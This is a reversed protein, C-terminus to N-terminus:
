MHARRYESPTHGTQKKFFASLYNASSFSMQEAVEAIPIGSDLLGAARRIRLATYYAKPSIGAYQRFLQKIYSVSVGCERAFAALTKNECVGATMASVVARYATAAPSSDPHHQATKTGLQVLFASLGDAVAQGVYPQGEERALFDAAAACIAAYAEAQAEDLSFVGRKLEGPLEGSACFTLVYGVPSTGGASKIRHFEMPAHLIMNNKELLYVKEDETVEVRGDTLFVIEWFDHSEGHFVFRQDWSFPFATYFGTIRFGREIYKIEM